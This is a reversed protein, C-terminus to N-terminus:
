RALTVHGSVIPRLEGTATRLLLRGTDDIGAGTGELDDVRLRRNLLADHSRLESLINQLKGSELAALRLELGGLLAALLPERERRSAELLALSTAFDALDKPFEHQEVNLGIGVVVSGIRQGSVQSEVLVGALKKGAALVDNPWKVLVSATVRAAAVERVALGACLALLPALEANLRPRLLLSFWLGAGPASLWESGRRGRGRSQTEAGFLAGHPAGKKAASLADDNTSETHELWSAPSGLTLRRHARETEFLGLDFPDLSM